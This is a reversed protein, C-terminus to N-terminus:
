RHRTTRSEKYMAIHVTYCKTLLYIFYFLIIFILQSKLRVIVLGAV